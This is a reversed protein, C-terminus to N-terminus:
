QAPGIPQAAPANLQSVLGKAVQVLSSEFESFTKQSDALITALETQSKQASEMQEAVMTRISEAASRFQELTAKTQGAVDAIAQSQKEAEERGVKIISASAEEASQRMAKASVAIAEAEADITRRLSGVAKQNEEIEATIEKGVQQLAGALKNVSSIGSEIGSALERLQNAVGTDAAKASKLLAEAAEVSQQIMEQLKKVDKAQARYRQLTEDAVEQFRQMVPDLKAALLDPSAEIREIREFLANLAEVNKSAIDNLKSSHDTFNSFATQINGMVNNSVESFKEVNAQMSSKASEAMSTVGEEAIQAMKRKFVDMETAIDGLQAKMDNAADALSIRAEREYETVDERMQNFFVRGALGIITTFIAIGFNTIIDAAGAARSNFAYLAYALSVLTYLFGLYYINDGIKDERIRYRKTVLAVGAYGFMIAVPFATVIYQHFGAMKMFWIALGGIAFLGFFLVQDPIDNLPNLYKKKSSTIEVM